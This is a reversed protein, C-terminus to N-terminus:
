RGHFSVHNIMVELSLTCEWIILVKLTTKKNLENTSPDQIANMSDADKM